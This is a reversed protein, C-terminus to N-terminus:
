RKVGLRALVPTMDIGLRELTAVVDIIAPGDPDPLGRFLIGRPVYYTASGAPTPPRRAVDAHWRAIDRVYL